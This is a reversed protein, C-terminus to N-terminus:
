KFMDYIIIISYNGLLYWLFLIQLLIFYFNYQIIIIYSWNNNWFNICFIICLLFVFFKISVMIKHCNKKYNHLKNKYNEIQKKFDAKNKLSIFKIVTDEFFLPSFHHISYFYKSIIFKKMIMMESKRILWM